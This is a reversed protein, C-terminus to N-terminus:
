FLPDSSRENFRSLQILPAAAADLTALTDRVRQEYAATAYPSVIIGDVV